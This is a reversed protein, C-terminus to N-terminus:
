TLHSLPLPVTSSFVNDPDYQRKAELLRRGNRGYSQSARDRDDSTLFNVYGGPLAMAEFAHLTARAWERHQEDLASDSPNVIAALVEVQVTV